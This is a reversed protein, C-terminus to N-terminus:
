HSATHVHTPTIFTGGCFHKSDRDVRLGAVYIKTGCPVIKGGVILECEVHGEYAAVNPVSAM